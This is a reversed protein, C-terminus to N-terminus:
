ERELIRFCVAEREDWSQLTGNIMANLYYWHDAAEPFVVDVSFSKSEGEKFTLNILNIAALEEVRALTGDPKRFRLDDVSM